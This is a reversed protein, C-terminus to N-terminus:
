PYWARTLPRGEGSGEVAGLHRGALTQGHKQRGTRAYRVAARRDAALLVFREFDLLLLSSDLLVVSFTCFVFACPADFFRQAASAGFFFGVQL